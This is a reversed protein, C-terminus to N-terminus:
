ILGEERAMQVMRSTGLREAGLSLFNEADAVTRIGGAAKIKVHSAVHRRFLVVDEPTAGGTSFGTSTKIYDAGSESVIRCMRIKEDETLLCTEIIIKLVHDESARRVEAIERLVDCDHGDRLKGINIVMDIEDAGDSIARETEYVKVGGYSYGCPFGVVTCIRIRGAVYESAARVYSPPICVSATGYRIGEDCLTRIDEWVSDPSLATHDVHSIIDKIDM